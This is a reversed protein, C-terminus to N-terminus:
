PIEGALEKDILNKFASYPQAGILPIGNIFFTPTSQVGLDYAAQADAAVENQHKRSAICDNFAQTDLGLETAYQAYAAVSLDYKMSFLADHFDWYRNQDHACQAAEAASIADPHIGDLPLDRYVFRIQDGYEALLRDYTEVHWKRCFSCQYDSFEIITIPAAADGLMPDDDISVEFRRYPDQPQAAQQPTVAGAGWIVYGTVLGLAFMFPLAIIAFLDKNQKKKLSKDM